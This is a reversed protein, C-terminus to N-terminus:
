RPMLLHIAGNDDDSSLEIRFQETSAQSVYGDYHLLNGQLGHVDNTWGSTVPRTSLGAANNVGSSCSVGTQDVKINRDGSLWVSSSIPSVDLGIFYSLANGRFGASAFGGNTDRSFNRAILKTQTDAPCVLIRPSALYNSLWTFEPWANGAKGNAQTGGDLIPV